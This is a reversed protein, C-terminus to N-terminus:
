PSRRRHLALLAELAGAAVARGKDSVKTVDVALGRPDVDGLKVGAAVAVGDALLGRLLGGIPARVPAGAIRGLQEGAEVLAGISREAVFRGARPARVVRDAIGAVPAAEGTDPAARGRWLVRGLDPGRSTEVVADVDETARFGPGLGISSRDGRRGPGPGVKTMRADVVAAPRVRGLQRAAADVLLPVYGGAVLCGELEEVDVRRAPVGEVKAVGARVADAFAARRRVALPEEREFVVVPIGCAFLLRAVASGLEGAGLV